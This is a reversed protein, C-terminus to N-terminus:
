WVYPTAMTNRMKQFWEPKTKGESFHNIFLCLNRVRMFNSFDIMFDKTINFHETYGSLFWDLFQHREEIPGDRFTWLSTVVDMMYWHYCCDDFDFLNLNDGKIVFNTREFDGHILGFNQENKPYSNLWDNVFDYGGRAENESTSLLEINCKAVRDQHWEHRKLNLPPLYNMSFKHLRGMCSGWRTFLSQNLEDPRYNFHNGAQEEFVCAHYEKSNAKVSFVLSGNKDAVPIAVSLGVKNLYNIFELEALIMQCSRHSNDTIRLIYSKGNSSMFRYVSNESDRIHSLSTDTRDWNQILTQPDPHDSNEKSQM